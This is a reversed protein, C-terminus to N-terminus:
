KVVRYGNEDAQYHVTRKFFGDSYSYMGMLALGDRSESRVITNDNITDQVSSSFSYHANKAEEQQREKELDDINRENKIAPRAETVEPFVVSDVQVEQTAPKEAVVRVKKVVRRIKNPVTPQVIAVPEQNVVVPNTVARLIPIPPVIVPTQQVPVQKLKFTHNNEVLGGALPGNGSRVGPGFQQDYHFSPFQGSCLAVVSFLVCLLKM